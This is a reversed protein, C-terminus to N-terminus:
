KDKREIDDEICNEGFQIEIVNLIEDSNNQLQHWSHKPIPVADNKTLQYHQDNIIIDAIGEVVFWFENRYHHRQMSTSSKPNIILSKLKMGNNSQYVVYHGWDKHTINNQKQVWNELLESSSNEKYNGGCDYHFKVQPDGVFHIAELINQETRDGGNYFNIIYEPYMSKLKKIADVASNDDDNFRIIDTVGVIHSLIEAREDWSMFYAGKKRILWEDSNLAVYLGSNKKAAEDIMKLHGSHLPDFGGSVLGISIENM